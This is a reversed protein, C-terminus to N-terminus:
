DRNVREFRAVAWQSWYKRDSVTLGLLTEPTWAPFMVVIDGFEKYMQHLSWKAL